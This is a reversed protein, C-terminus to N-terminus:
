QDHNVKSLHTFILSSSAKALIVNSSDFVRVDCNIIKKGHRIVTAQATIEEGEPAAYLFDVNLNISTYNQDSELSLVSWGIAEDIFLSMMGGHIMGYPNCMEPRITMKLKAQGKEIDVLTFGLWNGANSLTGQVVEGKFQQLYELSIMNFDFLLVVIIYRQLFTLYIM